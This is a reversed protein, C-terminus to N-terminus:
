IACPILVMIKYYGSVSYLRGLFVGSRVIDYMQFTHLVTFWGYKLLFFNLLILLPFPFFVVGLFGGIHTNMHM